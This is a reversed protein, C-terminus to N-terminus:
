DRALSLRLSRYQQQDWNSYPSPVVRLFDSSFLLHFNGFAHQGLSPAERRNLVQLLAVCHGLFLPLADHDAVVCSLPLQGAQLVGELGDLHVQFLGLERELDLLTRAGFVRQRQTRQTM